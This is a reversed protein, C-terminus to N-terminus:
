SLADLQDQLQKRRAKSLARWDVDDIAGALAWLLNLSARPQRQKVLRYALVPGLRQLDARTRIGAAALWRSSVPGLNRMTAVPAELDSVGRPSRVTSPSPELLAQLERFHEGTATHIVVARNTGATEVRRVGFGHGKLRRRVESANLDVTLRDGKLRNMEIGLIHEYFEDVQM